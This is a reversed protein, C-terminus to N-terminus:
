RGEDVLWATSWEGLSPKTIDTKEFTDKWLSDVFLAGYTSDISALYKGVQSCGSVFM